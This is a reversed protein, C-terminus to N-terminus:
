CASTDEHLIGVVADQRMLGVAEGMVAEVVPVPNQPGDDHAHCAEKRKMGGVSEIAVREDLLFQVSLLNGEPFDVGSWLAASDRGYVRGHVFAVV